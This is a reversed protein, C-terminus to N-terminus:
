KEYLNDFIIKITSASVEKLSLVYSCLSTLYEEETGDNKIIPLICSDVNFDKNIKHFVKILDLLENILENRKDYVDLNNFSIMYDKYKEEM